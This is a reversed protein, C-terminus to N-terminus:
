KKISITPQLQILRVSDNNKAVLFSNLQAVKIPTLQRVEGSLARGKLMFPLWQNNNKNLLVTGYNADYRGMQINAHYFNGTLLLDLKGDKDFDEALINRIPSLQAMWPLAQAKFNGKGDNVYVVSEFFNATRILASNLKAPEFMEDLKAKTFDEAYLFKKKILPLQKQLEEKNAFPVEEGGLYYTLIQEKKGNGDFDQFYMRVPEKKTAKLRSNLGLNGAVIDLDGDNDIDASKVKYWWGKEEGVLKREFGNNTKKFWLVNGWELSLLLDTKGDKDLDVWEADTVMGVDQLEANWKTTVDTFHGTGDNKLLYSLPRDGYDFPVTRGGIFIDIAGDGDFDNLVLAGPTTYVNNIANAIETLMGKGDNAFARPSQHVDNGYFENGADGLILDQTGDKNIDAWVAMAEEFMTDAELAPQPLRKFKGDITQLYVGPQYTKSAGIFFDELGDGNIDKVALAPGERSIMQPILPERDFENFLNEEHKIALGARATIDTVELPLKVNFHGAYDFVPLDKSFSFNIMEGKTLDLKQYTNNPWILFASDIKEPGVAITMPVEMSSQFGKVPFKEFSKLSEKQYVLVRAGIARPNLTDGKLSLAISPHEKKDNTTNKYILVPDDVNNVVIDLDGDNDLDAYVSGNSFTPQDGKIRGTLDEFQLNKKNLFFRNPLKIEPFKKLLAMNKDELTNERIKAQLEENSVFSVYDIDNLRKPIGNSIFLDKWGDNDFDMWLPAWSWDTAYVGSYLGVESFQGNGQNWQLNNRTYQHNYGFGIKYNFLNYSDEGLSRRLIYSDSPLMDMSIIEPAGDNNADAVDVGMSFQCTHLIQDRLVEKFTGNKQNIYLYDNEHFDNGIYLDPYGDNNIDSTAIGLGYGIISSNIGVTRTIETFRGGENKYFRDGALSDYTNEYTKRESFTGNFRLSHNMLYMDLDGDLDYDFFAAQTSFGSFALGMETAMDKYLPIGEKSISQCILFQNKSKLTEFNGVRCIYIDLMGDHNIDVVSVGTSWGGDNPIAAKESVDEFKLKGRNLYLKNQVQNGSFFLDISGDNNFDGAGVGAGNYFYMYKFMNFSATPTLKNTFNIGSENEKVVEFLAPVDSKSTCAVMFFASMLLGLFLRFTKYVLLQNM